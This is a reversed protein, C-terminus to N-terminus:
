SAKSTTPEMPSSPSCSPNHAIINRFDSHKKAITLVNMAWEHRTKDDRPFRNRIFGIRSDLTANFVQTTHTGEIQAILLRTAMEVTGMNM